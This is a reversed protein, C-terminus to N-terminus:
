RSSVMVISFLSFGFLTVNTEQIEQIEQPVGIKEGDWFWDNGNIDLVHEDCSLIGRGDTGPWMVSTRQGKSYAAWNTPEGEETKSDNIANIIELSMKLSVPAVIGVLSGDISKEGFGDGLMIDSNKCDQHVISAVHQVFNENQKAFTFSTSSFWFVIILIAFSKKYLSKFYNLRM